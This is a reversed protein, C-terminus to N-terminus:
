FDFFLIKEFLYKKEFWYIRQESYLVVISIHWMVVEQFKKYGYFNKREGLFRSRNEVHDRLSMGGWIALFFFFFFFFFLIALRFPYSQTKYCITKNMKKSCPLVTNQLMNDKTMKKSSPLVTNQLM